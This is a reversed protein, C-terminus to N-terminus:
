FIKVESHKVKIPGNSDFQLSEKSDSMKLSADSSDYYALVVDDSVPCLMTESAHKKDTDLAVAIKTLVTMKM